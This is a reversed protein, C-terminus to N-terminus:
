CCNNGYEQKSDIKPISKSLERELYERVEESNSSGVDYTELLLRYAIPKQYPLLKNVFESINEELNKIKEQEMKFKHM